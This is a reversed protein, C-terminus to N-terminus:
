IRGGLLYPAKKSLEGHIKIITEKERELIKLVKTKRKGEAFEQNKIVM